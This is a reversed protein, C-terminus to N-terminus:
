IDGILWYSKAILELNVPTQCKPNKCFAVPDVEQARIYAFNDGQSPLLNITFSGSIEFETSGCVECIM